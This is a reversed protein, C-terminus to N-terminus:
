RAPAGELARETELVHGAVDERFATPLPVGHSTPEVGSVDVSDLDRMHELFRSIDGALKELTADDFLHESPESWTGDKNQVRPFELHALRAIRRVESKDIKSM